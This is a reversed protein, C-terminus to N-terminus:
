TSISPGLSKSPFTIHVDHSSITFFPASMGANNILIDIPSGALTGALRKIDDHDSVDCLEYRVKGPLNKSSLSSVLQEAKEQSCTSQFILINNEYPGDSRSFLRGEASASSMVLLLWSARPLTGALSGTPVPSSSVHWLAKSRLHRRM